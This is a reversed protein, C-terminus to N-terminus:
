SIMNWEGILIEFVSCIDDCIDDNWDVIKYIFHPIGLHKFKNFDDLYEDDVNTMLLGNCNVILDDLINISEDDKHIERIVQLRCKIAQVRNGQTHSTQVSENEL